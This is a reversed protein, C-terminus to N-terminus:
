KLRFRAGITILENKNRSVHDGSLASQPAYQYNLSFTTRNINYQIGGTFRYDIKKANVSYKNESVVAAGVLTNAPTTSLAMQFDYQDVSTTTKTKLLFSAQVGAKVSLRKNLKMGVTLPIDAYSLRSYHTVSNYFNVNRATDNLYVTKDIGKSSVAVPSGATVGLSFFFKDSVNYSLTAMPYPRLNQKEGMIANVALGADINWSGKKNQENSRINNKESDISISKEDFIDRYNEKNRITNIHHDAFFVPSLYTLSAPMDKIGYSPLMGATEDMCSSFKATIGAIASNGAKGPKGAPFSKEESTAPSLIAPSGTLNEVVVGQNSATATNIKGNFSSVASNKIVLSSFLFITILSAAIFLTLLPVFKKKKQQPLNKELLSQMQEWGYQPSDFLEDVNHLYKKM